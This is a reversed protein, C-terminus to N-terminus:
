LFNCNSSAFHVEGQVTLDVHGTACCFRSVLVVCCCCLFVAVIYWGRIDLLCHFGVLLGM